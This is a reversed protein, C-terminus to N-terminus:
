LPHARFIPFMSRMVDNGAIAAATGSYVAEDSNFGVRDLQWFRLVAAVLLVLGVPLTMLLGNLRGRGGPRYSPAPGDPAGSLAETVSVREPVLSSQHAEATM